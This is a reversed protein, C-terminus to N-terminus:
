VCVTLLFTRNTITIDQYRNVMRYIEVYEEMRQLFYQNM